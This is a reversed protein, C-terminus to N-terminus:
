PRQREFPGGRRRGAVSGGAGRVVAPVRRHIRGPRRTRPPLQANQGATPIGGHITDASSQSRRSGNSGCRSCRKRWGPRSGSGSRPATRSERRGACPCGTPTGAAPGRSRSPCSRGAGDAPSSRRTPTSPAETVASARRAATRGIPAPTPFPGYACPPSVWRHVSARILVTIPRRNWPEYPDPTDPLEQPAVAPGALLRNAPSRARRPHPRPSSTPTVAPPNLM